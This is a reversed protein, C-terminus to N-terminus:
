VNLYVYKFQRNSNSIDSIFNVEKHKDLICHDYLERKDLRKSGLM